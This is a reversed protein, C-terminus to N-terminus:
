TGAPRKVPALNPAVHLLVLLQRAADLVNLAVRVLEEVVSVLRRSRAGTLMQLLKLLQRLIQAHEDLIGLVLLALVAFLLLLWVVGIDLRLNAKSQRCVGTAVELAM